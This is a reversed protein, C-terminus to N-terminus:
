LKFFLTTKEGVITFGCKKYMDKATDESDTVVYATEVGQRESLQLLYRFVTTGFGKRQHEELIDFDEIKIIGNSIFFECNGVPTNKHYCVYFKLNNKSRYAQVKRAIRKKAFNEGMAHSNALIDVEIGDDYVRQSLAEEITCDFKQKLSLYKNPSISMFIFRTIDPFVSLNELAKSNIPYNAEFQLFDKKEDISQQIKTSIITSIEKTSMINKLLVFNHAYMDPLNNDQFHLLNETEICQSFCKVYEIETDHLLNIM